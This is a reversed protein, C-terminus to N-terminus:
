QKRRYKMPLTIPSLHAYFANRSDTNARYPDTNIFVTKLGGAAIYHHDATTGEPVYDTWISTIREPM